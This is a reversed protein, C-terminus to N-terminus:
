DAGILTRVHATVSRALSSLSYGGELCSVIRGQAHRHAVQVIQKTVWTYDAEVLGLNGMDDERHGDFGASIYIMQPRFANLAPIMTQEFADRFAQGGSRSALGADIINAGRPNAGCFPYIGEEFTSCMLVRPDDFLIDESGNGHHVDFDILAVRELNHVDLAQRIGVCVNNFFCFGGAGSREAHHGPPRVNCFAVPARGSVVLDTALVAAGAAHLAAEYTHPNMQTDPDIQIYGARPSLAAIEHVYLMTHARALQQETAAPAEYPHMYDLLGKMLLMDHIACLRDPSEPHMHEMNHLSCSPHTVYAPMM